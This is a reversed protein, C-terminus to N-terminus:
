LAEGSKKTPGIPSKSIQLDAFVRQVGQIICVTCGTCYLRCVQYLICQMSTCYVSSVKYLVCKGGQVVLDQQYAAQVQNRVLYESHSIYMYSTFKFCVTPGVRVYCSM